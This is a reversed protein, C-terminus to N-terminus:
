LAALRRAAAERADHDLTFLQEFEGVPQTGLEDLTAEIVEPIRTFTIAGELFARM